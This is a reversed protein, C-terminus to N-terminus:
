GESRSLNAAAPLEGHRNDAEGHRDNAEGHRDNAEVHRDNAEVHRDDFFRYCGAGCAKARYLAMDAFEILAEEDVTDDPSIAIGLSVGCSIEEGRYTMPRMLKEILAAALREADDRRHLNTAVIVFEDGGLRAASDSTRTTARLRKAIEKLVFDGAKHGHTDNVGKFGDLDLCIVAIRSGNRRAIANAQHLQEEFAARNYLGTLSDHLALYRTSEEVNRKTTIDVVTASYVPHEASGKSVVSMVVWSRRGSRQGIFELELTSQGTDGDAMFQRLNLLGKEGVLHDLSAQLLYGPDEIEFLSLVAENAEITRGDGDFEWLGLDVAAPKHDSRPRGPQLGLTLLDETHGVSALHYALSVIRQRQQEIENKADRLAAIYGLLEQNTARVSNEMRKREVAYRISRELRHAQHDGKRIFDYAGLKMAQLDFAPDDYRTMMILPAPWDIAVAERLIDLGSGGPLMYDVIAIDHAKQALALAAAPIDKAWEIDYSTGEIERLKERLIVFDGPNDEVVLIRIKEGALARLTRADLNEQNDGLM